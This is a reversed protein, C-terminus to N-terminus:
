MRPGPASPPSATQKTNRGSFATTIRTMLRRCSRRIFCFSRRIAATLSASPAIRVMLSFPQSSSNSALIPASRAFSIAVSRAKWFRPAIVEVSHSHAGEIAARADKRTLFTSSCSSMVALWPKVDSVSNWSRETEIVNRGATRLWAIWDHTPRRRMARKMERGSTSPSGAAAPPPSSPKTSIERPLKRQDSALMPFSAPSSPSSPTAGSRAPCAFRGVAEEGAVSSVILKSTRGPSSARTHPGVPQPLDDTSAARQPSIGFSPPVTTHEPLIEYQGWLANTIFAVRRSLM